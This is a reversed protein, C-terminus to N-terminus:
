VPRVPGQDQLADRWDNITQRGPADSDPLRRVVFQVTM